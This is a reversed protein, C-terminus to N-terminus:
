QPPSTPPLRLPIPPKITADSSTELLSGPRLAIQPVAVSAPASPADTYGAGIVPYRNKTSSETASTQIADPQAVASKAHIGIPPDTGNKPLPMIEVPAPLEGPQLPSPTHITPADSPDSMPAGGDGQDFDGASVVPARSSAYNLPVPRSRSIERKAADQYADCPWPGEALYVGDYELLTGKVFHVNKTALSYRARNLHYDTEADAVRRQADLFLDLPAKDADYAAQVAGLQDRNAALRNYSTQLVTYARDTESIADAAEHVIERQQDRLIARERALLLEANRAAVHAERFGIPVNLEFGLQWEQFNGSTLDGYANDFQPLPPEQIPFLDDGFGRWRYRGVADLRPMLHNKSAMLELERRRIQWKQRRLEARRTTAECTIQEWDFDIKAVNPEDTPRLLKCDGPPLGMLLRLRREALLVGGTTQFAGSPLGNWNRSQTYPEGSLANQVDQQFAYYQARAQAEKEAEGGRRNVEYLANIKRWTDLGADRAKVRADLVRYGYYLDWYANEVNSVLDRVAIEFDTLAVDSNIRAILVGNYIGPTASPGAIRNYEMGGGQLLPHRIEAEVNTNWASAFINGPANNADYDVNHRVTFQTGTVARKSIAAQFVGVDQFLIRTGGGFFENNLARHNKEWFVSTRFQADFESLAAEIGTRPDTEAAAPDMATRTAAPARVVAGGLDRLVRSNELTLHIADELSMDWYEPTGETQITWPQPSSLSEDANMQTCSSEAPYEIESAVQEYTGAPVNSKFPRPDKLFCGSPLLMTSALLLILLKRLRVQMGRPQGPSESRPSSDLAYHSPLM